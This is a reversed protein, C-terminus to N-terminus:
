FFEVRKPSCDKGLNGRENQSERIEARGAACVNPSKPSASRRRRVSRLQSPHATCGMASLIRSPSPPDDTIMAVTRQKV